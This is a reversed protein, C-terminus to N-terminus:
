QLKCQHNLTRQLLVLIKVTSNYAMWMTTICIANRGVEVNMTTECKKLANYATWFNPEGCGMMREILKPQAANRPSVCASNKAPDKSTHINLSVLLYVRSYLWGNMIENWIPTNWEWVRKCYDRSLKAITPLLPPRLQDMIFQIRDFQKPKHQFLVLNLSFSLVM